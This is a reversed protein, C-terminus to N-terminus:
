DTIACPDELSEVLEVFQRRLGQRRWDYVFRMACDAYIGQTNRLQAQWTEESLFGAQYQYYHNDMQIWLWLYTNIDAASVEESLGARLAPVRPVYDAELHALTLNHTAEARAQYQTALAIDQGQKLQLGVFILSAVIAALGILEAIEKVKEFTM